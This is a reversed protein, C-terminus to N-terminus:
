PFLNATLVHIVSKTSKHLVGAIAIRPQLPARAEGGDAFPKPYQYPRGQSGSERSVVFVMRGRCHAGCLLVDSFRDCLKM